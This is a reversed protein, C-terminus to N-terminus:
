GIFVRNVNQPENRLVKDDRNSFYEEGDRSQFEWVWLYYIM